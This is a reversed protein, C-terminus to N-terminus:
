NPSRNFIAYKLTDYYYGHFYYSIHPHEISDLTLSPYGGSHYISYHRWTNDDRWVYELGDEGSQAIHPNDNSDLILSPYGGGSREPFITEIVWTSGDWRAYKLNHTPYGSSYSIHPHNNSDLAISSWMGPVGDDDVVEIEWNGEDRSAYKLVNESQDHYSIHPSNNDDIAISNYQGVNSEAEMAGDAVEILWESGDWKAYKLDNKVDDYYSIHPNNGRDIALSLHTYGDSEELYDVTYVVWNMNTKEREAYRIDRGDYLYFSYSACLTGDEKFALSLEGGGGAEVTDFSWGEQGPECHKLCGDTIDRYLIHPNNDNDIIISSYSGVQGDNDIEEEIWTDGFAFVPVTLIIILGFLIIRQIIM